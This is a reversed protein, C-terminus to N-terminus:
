RGGAGAPAQAQLVAVWQVHPCAPRGSESLDATLRYPEASRDLAAHLEMAGAAGCADAAKRGAPGGSYAVLSDGRLRGSLHHPGLDLSLYRGSQHVELRGLDTGGAGAGQALPRWTGDVPPPAHLAAGMRLVTVLGALPLGVLVVYIFLPRTALDKMAM